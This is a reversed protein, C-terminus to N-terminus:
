YSLKLFPNILEKAFYANPIAKAKQLHASSRQRFLPQCFLIFKATATNNKM